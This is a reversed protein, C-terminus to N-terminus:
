GSHAASLPVVRTSAVAAATLLRAQLFDAVSHASMQIDGRRDLESHAIGEAILRERRAGDARADIHVRRGSVRVNAVNAPLVEIGLGQALGSMCAADCSLRVTRLIEIALLEERRM